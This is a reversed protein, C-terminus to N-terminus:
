PEFRGYGGRYFVLPRGEHGVDLDQVRGVVIVHDGADHEAEITCEIFALVDALIPAGSRGPRWGVGLFRDPPRGAFARSLAEQDEALINVCFTGASRLKPWTRSSKAVCFAVLAPELSVSTFSNVALGVPDGGALGTVVTVGTAFRGLVQRFRAEDISTPLPEDGTLDIVAV